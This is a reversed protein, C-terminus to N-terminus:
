SVIGTRGKRDEGFGCREVTGHNIQEAIYKALTMVERHQRKLMETDM